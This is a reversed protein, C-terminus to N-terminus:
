DRVRQASAASVRGSDPRTYCHMALITNRGRLPYTHQRNTNLILTHVEEESDNFIELLETANEGIFNLVWYVELRIRYVLLLILSLDQPNVRCM